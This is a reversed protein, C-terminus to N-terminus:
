CRTVTALKILNSLNALIVVLTAHVGLENATRVATLYAGLLSPRLLSLVGRRLGPSKFSGSWNTNKCFIWAAVEASLEAALKAALKAGRRAALHAVLLLSRSLRTQM